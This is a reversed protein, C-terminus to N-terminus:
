STSEEFGLYGSYDEPLEADIDRLYTNLAKLTSHGKILMLRDRTETQSYEKRFQRYLKTVFTHRYSYLTYDSGLQLSKGEEKLFTNYKTKLNKFRKTFYDRRSEESSEWPGIGSPTFLFHDSSSFDLGQIENIVIDPIIKTKVLKNKARVHILKQKINIDGLRLRCAEIPRLFNYSVFKIFLLLNPDHKEMYRFMGDVVELSYTRNRKPNSKIVKIGAVFNKPIIDNAELEGFLASLVVRTNNRNRASSAKLIGNLYTNVLKRDLELINRQLYAKKELYRKFQGLRSRYDRESTSSLSKKKLGYAFDLAAEVSYKNEAKFNSNYPSYGHKLAEHLAERVLEFHILREKKTKYKRNFKMTINPQRVMLPNGHRDKLVPHQYSYYIYWRKSTDFSKGGHYLKPETYKKSIGMKQATAHVSQLIGFFYDM